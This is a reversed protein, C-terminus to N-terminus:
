MGKTCTGYKEQNTPCIVGVERLRGCGACREFMTQTTSLADDLDRRLKKNEARLRKIAPSLPRRKSGMPCARM